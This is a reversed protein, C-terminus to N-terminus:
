LLGSVRQPRVKLLRFHPTVTVIGLSLSPSQIFLCSCRGVEVGLVPCGASVLLRLPLSGQGARPEPPERLAELM